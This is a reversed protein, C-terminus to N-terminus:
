RNFVKTVITGNRGLVFVMGNGLTVGRVGLDSRHHTRFTALVKRLDKGSRIDVRGGFTTSILYKGNM